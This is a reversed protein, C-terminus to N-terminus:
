KAAQEYLNVYDSYMREFNYMHMATYKGKQGLERGQELCYIIGKAISEPDKYEALYGNEKHKIADKASGTPTSVISAGNMMAEPIVFGFPEFSAAHVYVDLIGYLSPIHGREVWGTFIIHDRVHHTEALAELEEKQDGKGVFLFVANPHVQLVDPIAQIIYRYGKWDILRSVTGMVKKDKLHYKEILETKVADIQNTFLSPPIGHHIMHVKHDPANEKELIFTKAEESPAIIHTANRNNFKDAIIWKRAHFYHFTTDAKTIARIKVGAIRAALLGPLGDDFLHSHVVDPKLKRFLSTLKFFASIMGRKRKHHDYKVWYCEWGYPKVDAIMKPKETYLTIFTFKHRGEAAAKEAFWNFYPVSSENSIIFVIRM